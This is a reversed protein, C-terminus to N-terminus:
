QKTRTEKILAERAEDGKDIYALSLYDGNPFNQDIWSEGNAYFELAKVHREREDIFSQGCNNNRGLEEYAECMEDTSM